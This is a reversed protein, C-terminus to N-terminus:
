EASEERTVLRAEGYPFSAVVWSKGSRTQKILETLTDCKECM